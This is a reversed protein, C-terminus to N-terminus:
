RWDDWTLAQGCAPCFNEQLDEDDCCLTNNCIPCLAIISKVPKAPTARDELNSNLRFRGKM